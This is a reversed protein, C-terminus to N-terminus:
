GHYNNFFEETVRLYEDVDEDTHPECIFSHPVARNMYIIGNDLMYDFYASAAPINDEAMERANRPPEDRFHLAFLSGAGTVGAGVPYEDCILTLEKRLREGLRNIKDHVDNEILYEITAIGATTSIPNGTFTGGHASREEMRPYKQHDILEFIEHSGCFAGIPFGGGLIKGIVTIDPLVGYHEQAGGPALRFGTIVEDFILLTDTEDCIERVGQLYDKDAALFGAAGMVPEILICALDGGRTAERAAELDNFPITITNELAKPDLGASEPINFPAHVGKHLADYGGHWGGEMKAVKLRGTYSRALRLAYMNAETGSSTYRVMEASPLLDVIMEALEVEMEHAFGYHTGKRLQQSVADAVVKPSHGLILAGHGVWYDTYSNGDVDYVTVGEAYDVYFPHPTIGRIAYSVGAPLVNKARRYLEQSRETREKYNEL